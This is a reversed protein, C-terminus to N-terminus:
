TQLPRARKPTCPGELLVTPAAIVGVAQDPHRQLWPADRRRTDGVVRAPEGPAGPAVVAFDPVDGHVHSYAQVLVGRGLRAGPAIVSHPGIFCYDGIATARQLRGVPQRSGWYGRGMLRLPFTVNRLM